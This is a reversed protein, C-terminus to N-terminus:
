LKISRIEINAEVDNAAGYFAGAGTTWWLEDNSRNETEGTMALMIVRAVDGAFDLLRREGSVAENFGLFENELLPQWDCFSRFCHRSSSAAATSSATEVAWCSGCGLPSSSSQHATEMRSSTSRGSHTDGVELGDAFRLGFEQALVLPNKNISLIDAPSKSAGEFRGLPQGCFEGATNQIRWDALVGHDPRGNARGNMSHPWDDLHLEGIERADRQVLDQIIRSRVIPPGVDGHGIM